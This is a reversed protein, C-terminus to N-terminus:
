LCLSLFVSFVYLCVCMYVCLSILSLSVHSLALSIFFHSELSFSLCLTLWFCLYRVLMEKMYGSCPVDPESNIGGGNVQASAFLLVLSVFWILVM